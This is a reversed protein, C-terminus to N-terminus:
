YNVDIGSFEAMYCKQYVTSKFEDIEVSSIPYTGGPKTATLAGLINGYNCAEQIDTKRLIKYIFGASFADGSGLPDVLKVKYGPEYVDEGIDSLTYAGREAFTVLCYKLRYKEILEGAFNKINKFPLNLMMGIQAAEDENLKCIDAMKLSNTITAKDYCDKRLNVDYFKIASDAAEFLQNLTRRSSKNRQALTGFCFCDASVIDELLEVSIQINDYAVDPNIIYDPNKKEDYFVDVTGTPKEEDWQIYRNDLGLEIVKAFASQGLIDKGLRSVILGKEGLSHVRFIFNFPAGGLVTQGPLIDWLLEGFSFITKVM